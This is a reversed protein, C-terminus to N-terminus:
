SPEARELSRGHQAQHASGNSRKRDSGAGVSDVLRYAYLALPSALASESETLEEAVHSVGLTPAARAQAVVVAAVDHTGSIKPNFVADSAADV